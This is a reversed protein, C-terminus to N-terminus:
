CWRKAKIKSADKPPQWYKSVPRSMGPPFQHYSTLMMMKTLRRYSEKPVEVRKSLRRLQSKTKRRRKHNMGSKFRMLRGSGTQWFRKV